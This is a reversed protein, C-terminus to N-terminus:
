GVSKAVRFVGSFRINLKKSNKKKKLFFYLLLTSEIQLGINTAPNDKVIWDWSNDASNSEVQGHVRGLTGTM